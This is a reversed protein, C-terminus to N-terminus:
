RTRSRAEPPCRTKPTTQFLSLDVTALAVGPPVFSSGFQVSPARHEVGRSAQPRSPAQATAAGAVVFLLTLSVAFVVGHRM